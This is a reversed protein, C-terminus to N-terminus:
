TEDKQDGHIASGGLRHNAAAELIRVVSTHDDKAWGQASVSNYINHAASAAPLYVGLERATQMAINLDKQQLEARFKPEFDHDLMRQGHLDLIMSGAAGGMLAERVVAPDAGAKSAFMLAEAVAQVTIGVIIQNSVKAVQGDGNRTGILTVTKGMAEFLPRVLEFTEQPGGVMITLAANIAGVDGGSVPADLYACGLDNIRAAIRSTETPSISSMDVVISGPSLGEAVGDEGFLAAEVDPTDPVMTIIVDAAVAVARNSDCATAGDSVIDAVSAADFDHVYLEHGAAILHGAMPRGMIGLGIFGVKM